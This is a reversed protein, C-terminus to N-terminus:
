CQKSMDGLILLSIFTTNTKTKLWNIWMKTIERNTTLGRIHLKQHTTIYSSKKPLLAAPLLLISMNKALLLNPFTHWTSPTMVLVFGFYLITVGETLCTAQVKWIRFSCHFPDFRLFELGWYYIAPVPTFIPVRAFYIPLM